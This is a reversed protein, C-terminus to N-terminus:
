SAKREEDDEVATPKLIANIRLYFNFARRLVPVLLVYGIVVVAIPGTWPAFFQATDSVVEVLSDTQWGNDGAPKVNIAIMSVVWFLMSGIIGLSLFWVVISEKITFRKFFTTTKEWEDNRVFLNMFANGYKVDQTVHSIATSLAYITIGLPILAAMAVIVSVNAWFGFVEIM